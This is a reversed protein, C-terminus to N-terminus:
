NYEYYYTAETTAGHIDKAIVKLTFHSDADAEYLDSELIDLALVTVNAQMLTTEVYVDYTVSDADPDVAQTWEATWTPNPCECNEYSISAIEFTNPANNPTPILTADDDSNCSLFLTVLLCLILTKSQKM